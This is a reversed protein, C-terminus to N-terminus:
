AINFRVFNALRAHEENRAEEFEPSDIGQNEAVIKLRLSAAEYERKLGQNKIPILTMDIALDLANWIAEAVIGVVWQTILGMPGWGLFPIAIILRSVALKM